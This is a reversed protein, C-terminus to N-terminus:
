PAKKKHARGYRERWYLFGPLAMVASMSFFTGYLEAAVWAEHPANRLADDALWAVGLLLPVRWLWEALRWLVTDARRPLLTAWAPTVWPLNTWVLWLVLFLGAALTPTM